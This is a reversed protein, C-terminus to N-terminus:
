EQQALFQKRILDIAQSLHNYVTVKSVGEREAIEQYSMEKLYRLRLIRQRIPPELWDIIQMLQDLQEDDDDSLIQKKENFLLNEVQTRISKHAIVNLCRNRVSRLLYGEEIEPLLVIGDALLTAFVDSVVDKCEDDDYLICRALNYMREYHSRFLREIETKQKM